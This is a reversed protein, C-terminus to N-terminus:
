DYKPSNPRKRTGSKGSDSGHGAESVGLLTVSGSPHRVALSSTLQDDALADITGTVDLGADQAKKAARLAANAGMAALEEVSLDVARKSLKSVESGVPADLIRANAQLFWNTVVNL